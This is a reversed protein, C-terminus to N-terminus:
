RDRQGKAAAFTAATAVVVAQCWCRLAPLPNSGDQSQERVLPDRKSVLVRGLRPARLGPCPRTSLAPSSGAVALRIPQHEVTSSVEQCKIHSEFGGADSCELQEVGLSILNSTMGSAILPIGLPLRLGLCWDPVWFRDQQRGVSAM